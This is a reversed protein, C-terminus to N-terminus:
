LLSNCLPTDMISARSFLIMRKTAASDLKRTGYVPEDIVTASGAMAKM